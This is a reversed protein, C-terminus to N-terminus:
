RETRRVLFRFAKIASFSLAFYWLFTIGLLASWDVLPALNPSINYVRDALPSGVVVGPMLALIWGVQREFGGPRIVFIVFAALASLVLAAVFARSWEAFRLNVIMYLLHM